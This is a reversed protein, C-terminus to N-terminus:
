AAKSDTEPELIRKISATEIAGKAVAYHVIDAICHLDLKNMLSTRHKEVTKVSLNLEGAIQKSLYGEAILQLVEAERRTLAPHPQPKPTGAEPQANTQLQQMRRNIAPSFYANGAQVERVARVLESAAAQKLVYGAAGGALAQELHPDDSYSSLIIVKTTPTGSTIQRTAEMGNLLPMALDMIVVDPRLQEAVAVAQRGSTAEGVIEMDRESNLLARLGDRVIHHDDVLLLRIPSNPMTKEREM